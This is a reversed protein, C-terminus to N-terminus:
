ASIYSVEPFAALKEIMSEPLEVVNSDFNQFRKGIHAGNKSLFSNLAGSMQGDLQLIVQVRSDNKGRKQGRLAPSVKDAKASDGSGNGKSSGQNSAAKANDMILIGSCLSLALSFVTILAVIPSRKNNKM